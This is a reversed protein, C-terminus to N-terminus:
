IMGAGGRRAADSASRYSINRSDVLLLSAALLNLVWAATVLRFSYGLTFDRGTLQNRLHAFICMAVFGAFSATFACLSAQSVTNNFGKRGLSFIVLVITFFSLILGISVFAATAETRTVLNLDTQGTPRFENDVYARCRRECFQFLGMEVPHLNQEDADAEIWADSGIGVAYFAICLVSLLSAIFGPGSIDIGQWCGKFGDGENKPM